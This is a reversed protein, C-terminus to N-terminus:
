ARWASFVPSRHADGLRFELVLASEHGAAGFPHAFRDDLAESTGARRYDGRSARSRSVQRLRLQEGGGVDAGGVAHLLDDLM